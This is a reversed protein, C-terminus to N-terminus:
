KRARVSPAAPTNSCGLVAVFIQAQHIEGSTRDIAEATQGAQITSLAFSNSPPTQDALQRACEGCRM